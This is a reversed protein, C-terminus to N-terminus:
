DVKGAVHRHDEPGIAGAETAKDAGGRHDARVAPLEALELGPIFDAKHGGGHRLRDGSAVLLPLREIGQRWRLQSYRAYRAPAVAGGDNVAPLQRVAG